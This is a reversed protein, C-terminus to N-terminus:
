YAYGFENQSIVRHTYGIINAVAVLVNAAIREKWRGGKICEFM